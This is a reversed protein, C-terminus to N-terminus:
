VVEWSREGARCGIQRGEQCQLGHQGREPVSRGQGIDEHRDSAERPAQDGRKRRRCGNCTVYRTDFEAVSRVTHCATCWRSPGEIVQREGWDM